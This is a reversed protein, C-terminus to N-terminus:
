EKVFYESEREHLVKPGEIFVFIHIAYYCEVKHSIPMFSFHAELNETGIEKVIKDLMEELSSIDTWSSIDLSSLM